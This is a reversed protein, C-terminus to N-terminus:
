SAATVAARLAPIAQRTVFFASTVNVDFVRRWLDTPCDELRALTLPSGANNVLVDLRGAERVLRDVTARAQEEITLDAPLLFALRGLGRVAAATEEAAKHSTHYHIGVDAGAGALALVVAQGIGTGGGTVLAVRGTLDFTGMNATTM